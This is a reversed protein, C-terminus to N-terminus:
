LTKPMAGQGQRRRRRDNNRLTLGLGDLWFLVCFRIYLASLYFFSEGMVRFVDEGEAVLRSLVEEDAM